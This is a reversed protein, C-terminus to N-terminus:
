HEGGMWWGQGEGGGGVYFNQDYETGTIKDVPSFKVACECHRM